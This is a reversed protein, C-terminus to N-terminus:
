SPASTLSSSTTGRRRCFGPASFRIPHIQHGDDDENEHLARVEWVFEPTGLHARYADFAAYFHLELWTVGDRSADEVVERVLRELDEQSRLTEVAALYLDKFVAFSEYTGDSSPEPISPLDVGNKACLERGIAGYAPTLM